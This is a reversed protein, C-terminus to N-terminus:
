RLFFRNPLLQGAGSRLGAALARWTFEQAERVAEPV